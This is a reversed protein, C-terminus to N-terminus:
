KLIQPKYFEGWAEIARKDYAIVAEEKTPFDGLNDYTGNIKIRSRWLGTKKVLCVGRYGSTNNSAKNTRNAGNQANTAFRLNAKRNDLRNGNIHDTSQGRPTKLVLRHMLLTKRKGNVKVQTSPYRPNLSWAYASLMEYDEADVTAFQGMGVSIRKCKKREDEPTEKEM